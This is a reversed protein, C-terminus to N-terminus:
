LRLFRYTDLRAHALTLTGLSCFLGLHVKVYAGVVTNVLCTESPDKFVIELIQDFLLLVGLLAEGFNFEVLHKLSFDEFLLLHHFNPQAVKVELCSAEGGVLVELRSGNNLKAVLILVLGVQIEDSLYQHLKVKAVSVLARVILNFLLILGQWVDMHQDLSVRDNLSAQKSLVIFGLYSVVDDNILDVVFVLKVFSTHDAQEFYAM